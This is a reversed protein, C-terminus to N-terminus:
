NCLYWSSVGDSILSFTGVGDNLSTGVSTYGYFTSTYGASIVTISPNSGVMYLMTIIRVITGPSYASASPLTIKAQVQNTNWYTDNNQNFIIARVGPSSSYDYYQTDTRHAFLNISTITGGITGAVASLSTWASGNYFYFGSTGDTQYVLLGTAPSSIATRQATTMRPVLVGQTTSSVDLMASSNAAAGTTNVSLGQAQAFYAGLSLVGTIAITLLTKNKM